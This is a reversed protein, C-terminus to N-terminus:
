PVRRGDTVSADDPPSRGLARARLRGEDRQRRSPRPPIGGRRRERGGALGPQGRHPRLWADLAACRPAGSVPEGLENREHLVPFTPRGDRDVANLQAHALVRAVNRQGLRRGTRTSFVFDQPGSFRSRDKHRSLIAALEAPIPVTRVSGDTKTPGVNGHRDVQCAFEVEADELDSIRINAWKLALLESVRAGTVAALTFLTGYPEGAAAITQELEHGEFLRRKASQGPKPPESPLLLSIPNTRAWGLRRAADRYIRNVVGVVIVITAALGEGRLERVLAALDDPSITDLRHTAFRRLLHQEVANRYCAQTTATLDVV